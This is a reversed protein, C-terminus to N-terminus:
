DSPTEIPVPMEIVKREPADKPISANNDDLPKCERLTIDYAQHQLNSLSAKHAFLWGSFVLTSANNVGEEHVEVLAAHEPMITVHPEIWCQKVHIQLSEHAFTRGEQVTYEKTRATRKDIVVVHAETPVPKTPRQQLESATNAPPTEAPTPAADQPRAQAPPPDNIDRVSIHATAMAHHAYANLVLFFALFVFHKM